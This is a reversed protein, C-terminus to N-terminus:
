LLNMKIKIQAKEREEKKKQRLRVRWIISPNEAEEQVRYYKNKLWFFIMGLIYDKDVTCCVCM